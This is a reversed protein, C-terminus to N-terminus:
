KQALKKTVQLIGRMMKAHPACFYVWQGETTPTFLVSEKEGYNLLPTSIDTGEINFNHKMGPDLNYIVFRVTEKPSILITPNNEAFAMGRIELVIDRIEIVDNSNSAGLNLWGFFLICGLMMLFLFKGQPTKLQNKIKKVM